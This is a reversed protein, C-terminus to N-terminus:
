NGFISSFENKRLKASIFPCDLYYWISSQFFYITYLIQAKMLSNYPFRHRETSRETAPLISGPKLSSSYLLNINNFVIFLNPVM